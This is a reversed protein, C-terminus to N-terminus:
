KEEFSFIGGAMRSLTKSIAAAVTAHDGEEEGGSGGGGEADNRSRSSQRPRKRFLRPGHSSSAEDAVNAVAAMGDGAAGAGAGAGTGAAAESDADVPVHEEFFSAVAPAIQDVELLFGDHGEDSEILGWQSNPLLAHLEEQQQLPYLVDSDIGMVLVPQTISGLVAAIRDGGAGAGAGGVAAAAAAAAPPTSAQQKQKPKQQRKQQQKQQLHGRGRGVDHSCPHPPLPGLVRAIYRRPDCVTTPRLFNM